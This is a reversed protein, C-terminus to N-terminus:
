GEPRLTLTDRNTLDKVGSLQAMQAAMQQTFASYYTGRAGRPGTNSEKGELTQFLAIRSAQVAQTRECVCANPSPWSVAWMPIIM